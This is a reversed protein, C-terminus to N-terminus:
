WDIDVISRRHFRGMGKSKSPNPSALAEELEVGLYRVTSDMKTHGVLLQVSRLSGKTEYIQIVKTRRMSHTGYASGEWGFTNRGSWLCSGCGGQWRLM